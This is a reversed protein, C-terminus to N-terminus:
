SPETVESAPRRPSPLSAVTPYGIRFPMVPHLDPHPLLAAVATGFEPTLGATLERDARELVQNLPQMALGQTTAALHLRQWVRGAKIWQERGPPNHLVITGFAAATAVHTKATSRVWGAGYDKRGQGSLLKGVARFMPPLGTGDLTIGDKHEQLQRWNGRWWRFDDTAQEEDAVVAEAARVSLEGFAKKETESTWWVISLDGETVVADLATLAEKTVPRATDYPGRNTHRQPIARFLASVEAQGSGLEVSAVHSPNAPDPLLSVVPAKGAADAAIMLNELACGLSIHMERRLADLTGTTREPVAFLDIRRPSLRFRWPQTNHANAALVAARILEIPQEGSLAWERWPEYAAGHGASFVGQEVARWTLAGTGAAVLVAAGIGSRRLFGRRGVVRPAPTVTTENGIM